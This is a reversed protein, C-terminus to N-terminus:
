IILILFLFLPESRDYLPTPIHVASSVSSTPLTYFNANQTLNFSKTENVKLRKGLHNSEYITTGDNGQKASMFRIFSKSQPDNVTSDNRVSRAEM